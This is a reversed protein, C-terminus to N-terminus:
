GRRLRRANAKIRRAAPAAAAHAMDHFAEHPLRLLWWPRLAQKILEAQIAMMGEAFAAQKEAIMKRAEAHASHSPWMAAWWLVPLRRLITEAAAFTLDVPSHHESM